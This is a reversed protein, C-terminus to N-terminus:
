STVTMTGMWERVTSYFYFSGSFIVLESKFHNMENLLEPNFEKANRFLSKMQEMGAARPTKMEYLYINPFTRWLAAIQDNLKDSMFSLVVNWRDSEALLTMHEMLATIADANHAGDFYWNKGSSLKEFVATAPFKQHVTEVGKVFQSAAVNMSSNLITVVDFVLCANIADVSKYNQGRISLRDGNLLIEILDSSYTVRGDFFPYLPAEVTDAIDQIVTQATKNLRGTFVPRSKKIIGGKEAAIESLEEGLIDTHDKGISTIVSAVPDVVNTADLRGGLGTELIAIDVGEQDFFWFALATTIEFYTARCRILLAGYNQFFKVMEGSSIEEGNVKFREKVSLLHPSTYIATKFGSEQYVSALMRCVTGKGNTGAVHISKFRDQPNGMASCIMKMRDLSFNAASQGADSFKPVSALFVLVEEINSFRNM